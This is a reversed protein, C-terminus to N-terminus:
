IPQTPLTCNATIKSYLVQLKFLSRGAKETAEALQMRGKGSQQNNMMVQMEDLEKLIVRCLIREEPYTAQRNRKERINQRIAKHLDQLSRKTAFRTDRWVNTERRHKRWKYNNGGNNEIIFNRGSYEEDKSEERPLSKRQHEEDGQSTFTIKKQM